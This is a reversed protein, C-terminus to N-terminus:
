SRFPYSPWSHWYPFGERSSINVLEVTIHQYHFSLFKDLKNLLPVGNGGFADASFM